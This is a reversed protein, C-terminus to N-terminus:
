RLAELGIGGLFKVEPQLFIGYRGAVRRRCVNMLDIVDATAANGKNVIFNAHDVSVEAGGRRLGKCGSRELLYGASGGPPNRFVSGFTRRATPQTEDRLRRFSAMAQGIKQRDGPRLGLTAGTLVMGPPLSATRYGFDLERRTLERREGPGCVEVREVLDGIASGHAGANMAVAGGLTGPIYALPELGSLGTEAAFRAAKPLSAGAGCVLRAGEARCERLKGSLIIVIGHYGEDAVLLNTGKGIVFWPLSHAEIVLLIASLRGAEEAGIMFAAPGGCGFSVFRAM